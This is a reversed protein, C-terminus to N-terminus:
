LIVTFDRSVYVVFLSYDKKEHVVWLFFEGCPEFGWETEGMRAGWGL